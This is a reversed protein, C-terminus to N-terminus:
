LSKLFIIKLAEICISYVSSLYLEINKSIGWQCYKIGTLALLVSTLFIGCINDKMPKM